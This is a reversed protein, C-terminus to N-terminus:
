PWLFITAATYCVTVIYWGLPMRGTIAQHWRRDVDKTLDSQKDREAERRKKRWLPLLANEDDDVIIRAGSGRSVYGQDAARGNTSAKPTAGTIPARNPTPVSDAQAM